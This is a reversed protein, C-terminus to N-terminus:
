RTAEVLENFLLDHQVGGLFQEVVSLWSNEGPPVAWVQEVEELVPGVAEYGWARLEWLAGARPGYFRDSERTRVPIAGERELRRAVPDGAAVGVRMGKIVAGEASGAPVGVRVESIFYPRSLGLKPRYPTDGQLGGVVLDLQFAQLGELLDSESGFTWEVKSGLGAAMRQVAEVEVGRVEHGHSWSWPPNVMAGARLTGEKVRASTKQPDRPM